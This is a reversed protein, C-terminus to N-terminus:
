VYYRFSTKCSGAVKMPDLQKQKYFIWNILLSRRTYAIELFKVASCIILLQVFTLRTMWLNASLRFAFILVLAIILDLQTM